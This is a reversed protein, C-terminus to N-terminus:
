EWFFPVIIQEPWSYAGQEFWREELGRREGDFRFQWPGNLNLWDHGEVFSRQRDPRPYEPRPLVSYDLMSSSRVSGRLEHCPLPKDAIIQPVQRAM